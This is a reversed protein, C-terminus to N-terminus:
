NQRKALPPSDQASLRMHSAAAAHNKPSQGLFGNQRQPPLFQAPARPAALVLGQWDLLSKRALLKILLAASV